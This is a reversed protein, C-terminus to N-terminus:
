GSAAGCAQEVLQVVHPATDIDQRVLVAAPVALRQRADRFEALHVGMGDVGVIGVVIEQIGGVEQRRARQSQAGDATTGGLRELLEGREEVGLPQGDRLVLGDRFVAGANGVELDGALVQSLVALVRGQEVAVATELDRHEGRVAGDEARGPELLSPDVDEGVDAAAALETGLPVLRRELRITVLSVVVEDRDGLVQNAALHGRWRVQAAMPRLLPPRSTPLMSVRRGSRKPAITQPEGSSSM